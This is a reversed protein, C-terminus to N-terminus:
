DPIRDLEEFIPFHGSHLHLRQPIRSRSMQTDKVNSGMFLLDQFAKFGKSHRQTELNAGVSFAQRRILPSPHRPSDSVDRRDTRTYGDRNWNM